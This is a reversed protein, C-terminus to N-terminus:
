LSHGICSLFYQPSPNQPLELANAEAHLINLKIWLMEGWLVTIVLQQEDSAKFFFFFFSDIHYVVNVSARRHQLWTMWRADEMPRHTLFSHILSRSASCCGGDQCLSLSIAYSWLKKMGTGPTGLLALRPWAPGAALGPLIDLCMFPWSKLITSRSSNLCKRLRLCYVKLTIDRKEAWTSRSYILVNGKSWENLRLKGVAASSRM